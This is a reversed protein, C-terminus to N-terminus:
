EGTRRLSVSETQDNWVAEYGLERLMYCIGWSRGVATGLAERNAPDTMDSQRIAKMDFAVRNLTNTIRRIQHKTLENM